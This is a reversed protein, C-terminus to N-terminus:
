KNFWAVHTAWEPPVYPGPAAWVSFRSMSDAIAWCGSGDDDNFLGMRVCEIWDAVTYLDVYDPDPLPELPPLTM